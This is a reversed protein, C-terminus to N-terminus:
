SGPGLVTFNRFELDSTFGRGRLPRGQFTMVFSSDSWIREGNPDYHLEPTELRRDEGPVTLVVDGQAMLREGRPDMAGRVATVHARIAGTEGYVTLDVGRLAWDLSDRWQFITDFNLHASRIGEANTYTHEGGMLVADAGMFELPAGVAGPRVGDEGQCGLLLAAAIGACMLLNGKKM